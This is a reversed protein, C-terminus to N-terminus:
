VGKFLKGFDAPQASTNKEENLLNRVIDDGNQQTTIRHVQIEPTYNELVDNLKKLLKLGEAYLEGLQDAKKTRKTTNRM